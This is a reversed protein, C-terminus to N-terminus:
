YGYRVQQAMGDTVNGDNYLNSGSLM